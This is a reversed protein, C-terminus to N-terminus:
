KLSALMARADVINDGRPHAGKGMRITAAAGPEVISAGAGGYRPFSSGTSQYISGNSVGFGSMPADTQLAPLSRERSLDVVDALEFWDYGRDLTEHAAAGLLDARMKAFKVGAKPLASVRITAADVVEVKTNSAALAPTAAVALVAIALAFANRM